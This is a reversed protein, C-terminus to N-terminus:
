LATEKFFEMIHEYSMVEIPENKLWRNVTIWGRRTMEFYHDDQFTAVFLIDDLSDIIHIKNM